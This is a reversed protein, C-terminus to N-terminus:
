RVIFHIILLCKFPSNFLFYISSKKDMYKKLKKNYNKPQLQGTALINTIFPTGIIGYLFWEVSINSYFLQWKSWNKILESAYTTLSSIIFMLGNTILIINKKFFLFHCVINM